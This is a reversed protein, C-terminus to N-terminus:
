NLHNGIKVVREKNWWKKLAKFPKNFILKALKINKDLGDDAPKKKDIRMGALKEFDSQYNVSLSPAKRTPKKPKKKMEAPKKAPKTDNNESEVFKDYDNFQKETTLRAKISDSVDTSKVHELPDTHYAKDKDSVIKLAGGNRIATLHDAYECMPIINKELEKIELGLQECRKVNGILKGVFRIIRGIIPWKYRSEKNAKIAIMENKIIKLQGTAKQNDKQGAILGKQVILANGKNKFSIYKSNKNNGNKKYVVKGDVISTTVINM